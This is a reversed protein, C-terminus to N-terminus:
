EASAVEALIAKFSELGAEPNEIIEEALEDPKPLSDLDALPLLYITM